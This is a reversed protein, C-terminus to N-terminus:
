TSNCITFWLKLSQIMINQTCCGNRAPHGPTQAQLGWIVTSRSQAPRSTRGPHIHPHPHSGWYYWTQGMQEAAAGHLSTCLVDSSNNKHLLQADIPTCVTRKIIYTYLFFYTRHYNNCHLSRKFCSCTKKKKGNM